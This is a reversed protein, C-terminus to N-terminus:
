LVSVVTSGLHVTATQISMCCCTFHMSRCGAQRGHPSGHCQCQLVTKVAFQLSGYLLTMLAAAPQGLKVARTSFQLKQEASKLHGLPLLWLGILSM